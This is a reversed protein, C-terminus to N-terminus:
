EKIRFSLVELYNYRRREDLKRKTKEFTVYTLESVYFIFALVFSGDQLLFRILASIFIVICVTESSTYFYLYDIRCIHNSESRMAQHRSILEIFGDQRTWGHRTNFSSFLNLFVQMVRTM